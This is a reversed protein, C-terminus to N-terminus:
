RIDHLVRVTDIVARGNFGCTKGVWEKNDRISGDIVVLDGISLEGLEMEQGNAGIVEAVIEEKGCADVFFGANSGDSFRDFFRFDHSLWDQGYNREFWQEARGNAENVTIADRNIGILDYSITTVPGTVEFENGVGDYDPNACGTLAAGGVLLLGSIALSRKIQQKEMTKKGKRLGPSM